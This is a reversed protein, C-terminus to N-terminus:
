GILWFTLGSGGEDRDGPERHTLPATAGDPAQVRWKTEGADNVHPGSVVHAIVPRTREDGGFDAWVHDGPKFSAM